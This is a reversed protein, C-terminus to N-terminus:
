KRVVLRGLDPSVPDVHRLGRVSSFARDASVLADAGEAMATAALVADFAGLAPHRRVLRLGSRVHPADVVLLPSLLELFEEALNAADGRARRRGRVHAFEQIVEATTSGRVDGEAIAELVRLCPERQPHPDGVAYLLVTTDLVIM